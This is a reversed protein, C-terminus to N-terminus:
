ASNRRDPFRKLARGTSEDARRETQTENLNEMWIQRIEALREDLDTVLTTRTSEARVTGRSLRDDAVFEVDANSFDPTDSSSEKLSSLLNADDRNMHIRIPQENHLREIMDRVLDDVAFVDADIAARTLWSAAVTALEITTEQMERITNRHQDHLEEVSRGVDNLLNQLYDLQEQLQQSNDPQPEPQPQPAPQPKPAPKTPADANLVSVQAPSRRFSLQVTHGTM